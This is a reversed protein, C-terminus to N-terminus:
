AGLAVQLFFASLKIFWPTICGLTFTLILKAYIPGEFKKSFCAVISTIFIVVEAITLAFFFLTLSWYCILNLIEM